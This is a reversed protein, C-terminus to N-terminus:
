LQGLARLKYHTAYQHIKNVEICALHFCHLFTMQSFSCIYIYIYTLNANNCSLRLAM